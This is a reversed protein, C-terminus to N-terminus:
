LCGFRKALVVILTFFGSAFLAQVIKVFWYMRSREEWMSDVKESKIKLDDIISIVALGIADLKAEPSKAAKLNAILTDSLVKDMTM